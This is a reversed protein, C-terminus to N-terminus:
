EAGGRRAILSVSPVLGAAHGARLAWAGARSALPALLRGASRAAVFAHAPGHRVPVIMVCREFDPHHWYTEVDEFGLARLAHSAQTMGCPSAAAHALRSRRRASPTWRAPRGLECYLWGGPRVVAAARTLAAPSPSQMVVVDFPADSADACRAEGVAGVAADSVRVCGVADQLAAALGDEGPGLYAVRGLRPEPLLFRWDLRRAAQLSRDRSRPRAEPAIPALQVAM